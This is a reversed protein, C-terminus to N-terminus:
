HFHYNGDRGHAMYYVKWLQRQLVVFLDYIVKCKQMMIEILEAHNYAYM